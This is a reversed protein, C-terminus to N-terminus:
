EQDEQDKDGRIDRLFLGYVAIFMLTVAGAYVLGMPKVVPDMDNQSLQAARLFIRDAMFYTVAFVVVILIPFANRWSQM